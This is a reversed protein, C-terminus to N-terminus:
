NNPGFLTTEAGKHSQDNEDAADKREIRKKAKEKREENAVRVLLVLLATEDRLMKLIAKDEGSQIVGAVKETDDAYLVIGLRQTIKALFTSLKSTYAASRINDEAQQWINFVYRRKYDPNIGRWLPTLLDTALQEHTMM